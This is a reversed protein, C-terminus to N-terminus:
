AYDKIYRVNFGQFYRRRAVVRPRSQDFRYITQVPASLRREVDRQGENVPYQHWRADPV